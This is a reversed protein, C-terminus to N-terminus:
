NKIEDIKILWLLALEENEFKKRDVIKANFRDYLEFLKRNRNDIGIYAARTIKSARENLTRTSYEMFYRGPMFNKLNIIVLVNREYQKILKNVKQIHEIDIQNDDVNELDLKLLKVGKFHIFGVSM